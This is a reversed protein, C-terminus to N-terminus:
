WHFEKGKFCPNLNAISQYLCVESRLMQCAVHILRSDRSLRVIVKNLVHVKFISRVANSGPETIAEDSSAIKSDNTMALVEDMLGKVGQGSFLSDLVLVADREYAAIQEASLADAYKGDGYVVPEQRAIIAATGSTRSEYIDTVVM